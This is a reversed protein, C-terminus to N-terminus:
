LQMPGLTTLYLVLNDQLRRAEQRLVKSAAGDKWFWPIRNLKGKSNASHEVIKGIGDVVRKLDTVTTKLGDLEDARLLDHRGHREGEDGYQKEHSNGNDIVKVVNRVQKLIQLLDFLETKLELFEKPADKFKQVGSFVAEAAQIVAIISATLSLPDM